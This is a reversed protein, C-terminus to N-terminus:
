VHFVLKFRRTRPLEPDFPWQWEEAPRDIRIWFKVSEGVQLEGLSLTPRYEGPKGDIDPALTVWDVGNTWVAWEPLNVPDYPQSYDPYMPELSINAIIPDQGTNVLEIQTESVGNRMEQLQAVDDPTVVAGDIHLEFPLDRWYVDGGWLSVPDSNYIPLNADDYVKFRCTFPQEVNLISYGAWGDASSQITDLLTEGAEDWIEVTFGEGLNGIQFTPAQYCRVEKVVLPETGAGSRYFGIRGTGHWEANGLYEWPSESNERGYAEVRAGRKMLRAWEFTPADPDHYLQVFIQYSGDGFLVLGGHEGEEAPAFVFQADLIFDGNPMPRLLYAPRSGPLIQLGDAMGYRSPNAPLPEWGAPLDSGAFVEHLILGSQIRQLAM